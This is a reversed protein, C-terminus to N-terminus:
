ARLFLNRKGRKRLELAAANLLHTKGYGFGGHIFVLPIESEGREAFARVASHGFENTPGPIFSDFTQAPHLVRNWLSKSADEHLYSVTAPVSPQTGTPERAVNGG